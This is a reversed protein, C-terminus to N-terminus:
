IRRKSVANKLVELVARNAPPFLFGDLELPDVWRGQSLAIDTKLEVLFFHIRVDREPYSFAEIHIAIPLALEVELALEERLERLLAQRPSEQGELKGGPFEWYGELHDTNKRKQIWVKDKRRIVAVAVEVEPGRAIGWGSVLFIGLGVAIGGLLVVMGISENLIWYALLTALVPEALALTSILTASLYKLAWNYSTHGLCQPILGLLFLFLHTRWGWGSLPLDLLWVLSGLLTAAILYTPYVYGLLGVRRRIRRGAVLYVALAAAGAMALLSGKWSGMQTLENLFLLGSGLFALGIGLLGIATPKERFAFYSLLVVLIPSTNVLLVSVAVSTYRLSSVWFGFHLGLALGAILVWGGTASRKAPRDAIYFPLLIVSAWGMRFFAIVLSPAEQSLRVLISGFAISLLSLSLVLFLRLRSPLAM